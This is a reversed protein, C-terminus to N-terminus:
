ALHRLFIMLTEQGALATLPVSRGGTDSLALDPLRDGPALPVERIQPYLRALWAPSAGALFLWRILVWSAITRALGPQEWRRASTVVPGPLCSTAGARELRRSLDYDEM